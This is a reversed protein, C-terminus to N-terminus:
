TCSLPAFFAVINLNTGRAEYHTKTPKPATGYSFLWLTGLKKKEEEKWIGIALSASYRTLLPRCRARTKSSKHWQTGLGLIM